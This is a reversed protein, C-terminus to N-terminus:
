AIAVKKPQQKKPRMASRRVYGTSACVITRRYSAAPWVMFAHFRSAGGSAPAAGGCGGSRGARVLAGEANAGGFGGTSGRLGRTQNSMTALEREGGFQLGAGDVKPFDARRPPLPRELM